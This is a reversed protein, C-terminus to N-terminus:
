DNSKGKEPTDLTDFLTVKYTKNKFTLYGNNTKSKEVLDAALWWIFIISVVGVVLGIWFWKDNESM